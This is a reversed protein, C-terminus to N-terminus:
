VPGSFLIDIVSVLIRLKSILTSRCLLFVSSSMFYLYINKNSDKHSVNITSMSRFCCSVSSQIDPSDEAQVVILPYTDLKSPPEFTTLNTSVEAACISGLATLQWMLCKYDDLCCRFFINHVFDM